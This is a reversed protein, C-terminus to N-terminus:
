PTVNNFYPHIVKAGPKIDMARAVGGNLELVGTVPVLSSLPELSQPQANERITQIIGGQDIYIIDLPIFTNKMWFSTIANVNLMFLMGHDKAMSKRFMLGQAHKEPTDAIEINFPIKAGATTEVTLKDMAFENAFAKDKMYWAIIAVVVVVVLVYLRNKTM